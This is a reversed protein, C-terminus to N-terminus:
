SGPRSGHGKAILAGLLLAPLGAVVFLVWSFAVACVVMVVVILFLGIHVLGRRRFRRDSPAGSLGLYLM